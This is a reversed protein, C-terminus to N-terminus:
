AYRTHLLDCGSVATAVVTTVYPAVPRVRWVPRWHVTRANLIRAAGLSVGISLPTGFM